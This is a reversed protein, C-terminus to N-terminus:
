FNYVYSYIKREWLKKDKRSNNKTTRKKEKRLKVAMNKELYELLYWVDISFNELYELAIKFVIFDKDVWGEWMEEIETKLKEM